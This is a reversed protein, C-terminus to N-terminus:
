GQEGRKFIMLYMYPFLLFICFGQEIVWFYFRIVFLLFLNLFNLFLLCIFSLNVLLDEVSQKVIEVQLLPLLGPHHLQIANVVLYVQPINWVIYKGRYVNSMPCPWQKKVWYIALMVYDDIPSLDPYLYGIIANLQANVPDAVARRTEYRSKLSLYKKILLYLNFPGMTCGNLLYNYSWYAVVTQEPSNSVFWGAM